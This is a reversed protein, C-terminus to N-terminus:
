FALIVPSKWADSPMQACEPLEWNSREQANTLGEVQQSGSKSACTELLPGKLLGSEFERFFKTRSPFRGILGKGLRPGM